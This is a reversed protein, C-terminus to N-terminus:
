RCDFYKQLSNGISIMANHKGDVYDVYCPLEFKFIRCEKQLLTDATKKHLICFIAGELGNDVRPFMLMSSSEGQSVFDPVVHMFIYTLFPRM